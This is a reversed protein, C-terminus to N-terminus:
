PSRLQYSSRYNGQLNRPTAYFRYEGSLQADVVLVDNVTTSVILRAVEVGNPDRVLFYVRGDSPNNITVDYSIEIQQGQRAAIAYSEIFTTPFDDGAIPTPTLNPTSTVLLLATSTPNIPDVNDMTPNVSVTSAITPAIAQTITAVITELPLVGETPTPQNTTLNCATLLLMIALLMWVRM